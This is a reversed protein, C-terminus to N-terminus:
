KSDEVEVEDINFYLPLDEIVVNQENSRGDLQEFYYEEPIRCHWHASISARTSGGSQPCALSLRGLQYSTIVNWLLLLTLNNNSEADEIFFFATQRYEEQRRLSHGPIPLQDHNSKLVRINYQDHLLYLGNNPVDGLRIGGVLHDKFYQRAYYRVLNPALYRDITQFEPNEQIDFFEHVKHIGYDLAAHTVPFLPFLDRIVVEQNPVELM